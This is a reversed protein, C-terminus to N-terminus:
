ENERPVPSGHARPGHITHYSIWHLYLQERGLHGNHIYLRQYPTSRRAQDLTLAQTVRLKRVPQGVM